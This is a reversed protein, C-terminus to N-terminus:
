YRDPCSSGSGARHLKQLLHHRQLCVKVKSVILTKDIFTQVFVGVDCGSLYVPANQLFFAATIVAATGYLDNRMDGILDLATKVAVEGILFCPDGNDLDTTRDTIDFALWEQFGDTLELVFDSVFIGNQDM